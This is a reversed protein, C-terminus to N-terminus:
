YYLETNQCLIAFDTTKKDSVINRKCAVRSNLLAFYLFCFIRYEGIEQSFLVKIMWFQCDLMLAVVVLFIWCMSISATRKVKNVTKEARFGNESWKGDCKAKVM